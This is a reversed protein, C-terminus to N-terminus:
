FIGIGGLLPVPTVHVKRENPIDYIKMYEAVKKMLGVFIISSIFCTVLVLLANHGNVMLKM